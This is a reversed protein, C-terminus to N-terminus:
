GYGRRQWFERKKRRRGAWEFVWAPCRRVHVAHKRCWRQLTRRPVWLIRSTARIGYTEITRFAYEKQSATYNGGHGLSLFETKMEEYFQQQMLRVLQKSTNM